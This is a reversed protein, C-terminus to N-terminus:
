NRIDNAPATGYFDEFKKEVEARYPSNDEYYRPDDLLKQLKEKTMDSVPKVNDSASIQTERMLGRVKELIEFGEATRAIGEVTLMEEKSFETQAWSTVDNIRRDADRGIKKKEEEITPQSAMLGEAYIGLLKSHAKQSLGAETAWTNFNVLMEDESDIDVDIGEPLEVKYGDEPAGTFSGLKSELGAYAKAQESVTKYKGSKFWDPVDGEGKTEENLYWGEKNVETTETTETTEETSVDSVEQENLLTEESM